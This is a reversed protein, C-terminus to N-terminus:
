GNAPEKSALGTVSEFTLEAEEDGVAALFIGLMCAVAGDIKLSRTKSKSPKINGNPDPRPAAVNAFCWRLAPHGGHILRTDLIAKETTKMAPSMLRYHQAVEVVPLADELLRSMLRRTNWPDFAIGQVDFTQCLERIREEIAREDVSAGDTSRVYGAQEWELYPVGDVESRKAISEAPVWFTPLVYFRGAPADHFIAAVCTLDSTSGADVGLFCPLHQIDEIEFLEDGRDYVDIDLWADDVGDFWVNLHYRMFERRASMSTAAELALNRLTRLSKFSGLAFNCQRWIREDRWDCDAPAEYIIPLWSPNSIKGSAIDRAQQYLEFGFGRGVGATTAVITMPAAATVKAQSKRLVPWIRPRNWAHVEEAVLLYVSLGEQSDPTRSLVKLTSGSAVHTIQQEVANSVIRFRSALADPEDAYESADFRRRIFGEVMGFCTSKAQARTAAAVVLQGNPIRFKPHSMMMLAIAAALTSKAQGSPVYLFLTEIERFGDSDVNGFVGRVIREQVPHLEFSDGGELVLSEIFEVATQGLGLPDPLDISHDTIWRPLMEM